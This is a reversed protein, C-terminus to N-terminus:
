RSRLVVLNKFAAYFIYSLLRSHVLTGIRWRLLLIDDLVRQLGVNIAFVELDEQVFYKPFFNSNIHTCM